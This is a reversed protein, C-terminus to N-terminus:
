VGRIRDAEREHQEPTLGITCPYYDLVHLAVDRSARDVYSGPGGNDNPCVDDMIEAMATQWTARAGRLEDDNLPRTVRPIPTSHM